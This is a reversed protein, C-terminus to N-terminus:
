VGFLKVDKAKKSGAKEAGKGSGSSKGSPVKEAGAGKNSGPPKKKAEKEERKLDEEIEARVRNLNALDAGILAKEDSQQQTLASPFKAYDKNLNAIVDNLHALIQKKLRPNIQALSPPLFDKDQGCAKWPTADKAEDRTVTFITKGSPDNVPTRYIANAVESDLAFSGDWKPEVPRFRSIKNASSNQRAIEQTRQFEKIDFSKTKLMTNTTQITEVGEESYHAKTKANGATDSSPKHKFINFTQLINQFPVIHDFNSFFNFGPNSKSPLDPVVNDHEDDSSDGDHSAHGYHSHVKGAKSSGEELATEGGKFTAVKAAKTSPSDLDDKAGENEFGIGGSESRGNSGPNKESM